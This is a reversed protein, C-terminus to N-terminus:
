YSIGIPNKVSIWPSIESSIGPHNELHIRQYIESNKFDNM